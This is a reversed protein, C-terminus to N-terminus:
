DFSWIPTKDTIWNLAAPESEIAILSEIIATTLKKNGLVGRMEYGIRRNRAGSTKILLWRYRLVFRELIKIIKITIQDRIQDLDRNSLNKLEQAIIQDHKEEPEGRLSSEHIYKMCIGKSLMRFFRLGYDLKVIHSFGNAFESFNSQLTMPVMITLYDINISQQITTFNIMSSKLLREIRQIVRHSKQDEEILINILNEREGDSQEIANNLIDWDGSILKITDSSLQIPKFKNKVVMGSAAIDMLNCMCVYSFNRKVGKITEHCSAHYPIDAFISLSAEGTQSVGFKDHHQIISCLLAFREIGILSILKQRKSPFFDRILYLGIQPHNDVEIHKGIDHFLTVIKFFDSNTTSLSNNEFNSFISKKLKIFDNTSDIERLFGNYEERLFDEAYQVVYTAHSPLILDSKGNENIRDCDFIDILEEYFPAKENIEIRSPDIKLKYFDVSNIQNNM